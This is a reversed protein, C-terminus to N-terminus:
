KICGLWVSDIASYSISWQRCFLFKCLYFPFSESEEAMCNYFLTETNPYKHFVLKWTDNKIPCETLTFFITDFYLKKNCKMTLM